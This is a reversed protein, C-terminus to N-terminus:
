AARKPLYAPKLSDELDQTLEVLDISDDISAKLLREKLQLNAVSVYATEHVGDIDFEFAGPPLAVSHVDSWYENGYAHQDCAYAAALVMDDRYLIAMLM